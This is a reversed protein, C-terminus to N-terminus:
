LAAPPGFFGANAFRLALRRWMLGYDYEISRPDNCIATAAAIETHLSSQTEEDIQTGDPLLGDSVLMALETLCENLENAQSSDTITPM